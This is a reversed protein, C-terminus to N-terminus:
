ELEISRVLDEYLPSLDNYESAPAIMLVYFLGKPRSAAVMWIYEKQGEIASKGELFVSEGSAGGFTLAKRYGPMEELGPNKSRLDAILASISDWQNKGRGDFYDAIVGRAISQGVVGNSPLITVGPGNQARSARWGQPPEFSYGQGHFMGSVVEPQSPASAGPASAGPASAPPTQTTQQPAKYKDDFKVSRVVEEFTKSYQNYESQPSIMLLHFLGQPRMAAVMWIYEKQGEVPSKGELFVSEGNVGGFRMSKRQGSIAELGPNKSKLDDILKTVADSQNTGGGTYYDSIVGRAIGQGVAGNEPMVTGGKGDPHRLLRWGNPPHLEVGDAQFPGAVVEPEAHGAAASGPKKTPKVGAARSRMPPFQPTNTVYETSGRYDRIEETVYEVRNGPNPHSALFQPMGGGGGSQEALKQFFNAMEVPNYGAEAMMRAGVIDADREANRSYKLLASNLGLSLGVQGLAGLLGGANGLAGGALVAPLQFLSAKSAQNTSHRLVVHGIEHAMVGAVQAENDAQAITGTHMYIPGGPLAFANIAPDAVVKFTFPYDGDQAYRALKNGMDSIYKTLQADNVVEVEQEIQAAAEKGLQIDQEKSFLNFGPKIEKRKTAAEAEAGGILCVLALM